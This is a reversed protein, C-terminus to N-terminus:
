YTYTTTYQTQYTVQCNVTCCTQCCTQYTCTCPCVPAEYVQYVVTQPVLEPCPEEVVQPQCDACPVEQLYVERTCGCLALMSILIANTKKIM